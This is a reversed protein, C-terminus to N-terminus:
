ANSHIYYGVGGLCGGAYIIHDSDLQSSPNTFCLTYDPVLM